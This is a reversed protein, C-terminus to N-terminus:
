KLTTCHWEKYTFHIDNLILDVDITLYNMIINFLWVLVAFEKSM